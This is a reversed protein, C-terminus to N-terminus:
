KDANRHKRLEQKIIEKPDIYGTTDVKIGLAIELVPKLKDRMGRLTDLDTTSDVDGELWYLRSEGVSPMIIINDLLLEKKNAELWDAIQRGKASIAWEPINGFDLAIVLNKKM